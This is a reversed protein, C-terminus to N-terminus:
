EAELVALVEEQAVYICPEGDWECGGSFRENHAYVFVITDGPKLGHEVDHGHRQAPPGAALVVGRHSSRANLGRSRQANRENDPAHDPHWISGTRSEVIPRVVIRGRLPRPNL